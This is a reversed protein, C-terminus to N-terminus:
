NPTKRYPNMKWRANAFRVSVSVEVGAEYEEPKSGSSTRSRQRKTKRTEVSSKEEEAMESQQLGLSQVNFKYARDSALFLLLIWLLCAMNAPLRGVQASSSQLLM